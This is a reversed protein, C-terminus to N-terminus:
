HITCVAPIGTAVSLDSSAAPRRHRGDNEFRVRLAETATPVRRKALTRAQIAISLTPNLTDSKMSM